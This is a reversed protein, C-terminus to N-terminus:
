AHRDARDRAGTLASAFGADTGPGTATAARGSTLYVADDAIGDVLAAQPTAILVTLGQAALTRLLGHIEHAIAPALGETPEDLLLLAPSLLLARALALMQQEGGSLEGGRHSHREGLRPLLRVVDARTWVPGAVRARAAARAAPTWARRKTGAREALRLHQEVTLSAFVRRGQPVIATGVRAVIHPPKGTVDTGAIRISGGSPTVLGAVAHLLTTKGAGNPGVVALVGGRPLTLDIGHLVAGGGYGATLSRIDLM